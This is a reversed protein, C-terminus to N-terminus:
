WFASGTGAGFDLVKAPSFDPLRRRVKLIFLFVVNNSFVFNVEMEQVLYCVKFKNEVESLVRYCACYVAPMRSAVYAITEDDSYKLGIDGYVSKIKWRKSRELNLPDEVLGKSTSQPLLLNVQKIENFSESLRLVKRRM